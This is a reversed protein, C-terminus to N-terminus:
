VSELYSKIASNIDAPSDIIAAPLGDIGITCGVNSYNHITLFRIEIDPHAAQLKQKALEIDDEDAVTEIM